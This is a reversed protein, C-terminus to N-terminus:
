RLARMLRSEMDAIADSMTWIGALTSSFDGRIIDSVDPYHPTQPRARATALAAKADAFWPDAKLIEPDDYLDPMAPLNSAKLALTREGDPGALFRVLRAAAEKSKSYASVAWV